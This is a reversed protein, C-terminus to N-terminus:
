VKWSRFIVAKKKIKNKIKTKEQNKTMIEKNKGM